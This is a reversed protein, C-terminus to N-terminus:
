KKLYNVTKNMASLISRVLQMHDIGDMLEMQQIDSYRLLYSLYPEQITSILEALSQPSSSHETIFFAVTESRWWIDILVDLM